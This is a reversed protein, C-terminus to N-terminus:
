KMSNTKTPIDTSEKRVSMMGSNYSLMKQQEEDESASDLMADSKMSYDSLAMDSENPSDGTLEKPEPDQALQDPNGKEITNESEDHDEHMEDQYPEASNAIEDISDIQQSNRHSNDQVSKKSSTHTMPTLADPQHANELQGIIVPGSSRVGNNNTWPSMGGPRSSYLSSLARSDTDGQQLKAITESSLVNKEKLYGIFAEFICGDFHPM